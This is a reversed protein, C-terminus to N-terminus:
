RLHAERMIEHQVDRPRTVKELVLQADQSSVQVRVNGFGYLAPQLGDVSAQVDQVRELGVERDDHSFMSRQTILILRKNTLVYITKRWLWFRWIFLVLGVFFTVPILYLAGQGTINRIWNPISFYDLYFTLSLLLFPVFLMLLLPDRFVVWHQRVGLVIDEEPELYIDSPLNIDPFREERHM